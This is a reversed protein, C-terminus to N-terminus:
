QGKLNPGSIEDAATMKVTSGLYMSKKSVRWNEVKCMFRPESYAKDLTLQYMVAAKELSFILGLTSCTMSFFDKIHSQAVIDRDFLTSSIM